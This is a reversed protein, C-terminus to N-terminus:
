KPTIETATLTGSDDVTIRFKKTSNATSSYLILAPTVAEGNGLVEFSKSKMGNPRVEFVTNTTGVGPQRSKPFIRTTEKNVYVGVAEIFPFRADIFEKDGYEFLGENNKAISYIEGNQTTLRIEDTYDNDLSTICLDMWMIFRVRGEFYADIYNQVDEETMTLNKHVIIYGSTDKDIYKSPIKVIPEVIGSISFTHSASTDITTIRLEAGNFAGIVFPEGDPDPVGFLINTNGLLLISNSEICTCEYDIGDWSVKYTEGVTPSFTSELRGMYLGGGDAFSVTSEEVLVTEVTDGTYFPRNKVYDAATSDNQNWDPQVQGGGGGHQDAYSKALALTMADLSM